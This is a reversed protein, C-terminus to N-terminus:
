WSAGEHARYLGQMEPLLHGLHETHFGTRGGLRQYDDTPVQLTAETVVNSVTSHFRSRIVEPDVAIGTALLQEEVEDNAFLDGTYPWHADIGVQMRRHSEETGDGLTIM